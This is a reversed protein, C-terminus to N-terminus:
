PVCTRCSRRWLELYVCAHHLRLVAITPKPQHLRTREATTLSDYQLIKAREDFFWDFWEQYSMTKLENYLQIVQEEGLEDTMQDARDSARRPYFANQKPSSYNTYQKKSM